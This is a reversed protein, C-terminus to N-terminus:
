IENETPLDALHHLDIPHHDLNLNAMQYSNSFSHLLSSSFLELFYSKCISSIEHPEYTWVGVANKLGVIKNYSRHKLTTIHFFRSNRDGDLIWNTRSKMFWLDEELKLIESYENALEKELTTLFSSHNISLFRHIGELRAMIKKKRKFLNGFTARSWLKAKKMMVDLCQTTNQDVVGWCEQVLAQFEPHDVWFKELKFPRKGFAHKSPDLDLLLPCHDSHVRPLHFVSAESFNLKWDANCWVRDLRERIVHGDSQMNVWTFRGGIFGLDMMQCDNMCSTFAQVRHQSIPAGRFKESQDVVDNFDGAIVWPGKFYPSLTRLEQWLKSRLDFQPRGYVSSFFWEICPLSSPSRVKVIAHIAQDSDAIVDASIQSADWLLWLGGAFGNADVIHYNPYLHSAIAKARDGSVKTEMILMMCPRHTAKLDMVHRKFSESAAGRCNWILIKM